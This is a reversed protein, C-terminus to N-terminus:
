INTLSCRSFFTISLTFLARARACVCVCVCVYVCVCVCVCTEIVRRIITSCLSIFVFNDRPLPQYICLYFVPMGRNSEMRIIISPALNGKTAPSLTCKAQIIHSNNPGEALKACSLLLCLTYSCIVDRGDVETCIDARCHASTKSLLM